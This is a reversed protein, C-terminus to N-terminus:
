NTTKHGETKIPNFIPQKKYFVLINEHKKMPHTNCNLSGTARTKEWIWEYRLMKINSSGLIKDFPTQGFLLIAGNDKIIRNYQEWLLVLDIPKDWKEKCKNNYPLDAIILDITKDKIYSLNEIGDCNFSVGNEYREFRNKYLSDHIYETFM